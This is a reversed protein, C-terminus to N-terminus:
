SSSLLFTHLRHNITPLSPIFVKSYEVFILTQDSQVQLFKKIVVEIIEIEFDDKKTVFYFIFYLVNHFIHFDFLASKSM